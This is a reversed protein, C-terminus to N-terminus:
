QTPKWRQKLIFAAIEEPTPEKIKHVVTLLIKACLESTVPEGKKQELRPADKKIFPNDWDACPSCYSMVKKPSPWQGEADAGAAEFAEQLRAADTPHWARTAGSPYQPVGHKKIARVWAAASLKITEAAPRGTLGGLSLLFGLGNCVTVVFVSNHKAAFESLGGLTQGSKSIFQQNM